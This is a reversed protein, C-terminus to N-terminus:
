KTVEVLDPMFKDAFERAKADVRASYGEHGIGNTNAWQEIICGAEIADRIFSWLHGRECANVCAVIRRANAEPIGGATANGLVKAVVTSTLISGDDDEDGFEEHTDGLVTWDHPGGPGSMPTHPKCHWPEATHKSM